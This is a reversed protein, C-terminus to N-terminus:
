CLVGDTVQDGRLPFIVLYLRIDYMIAHRVNMSQTLFRRSQNLTRQLKSYGYM